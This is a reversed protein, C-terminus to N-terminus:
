SSFHKKKDYVAKIENLEKLMKEVDAPKTKKKEFYKFIVGYSVVYMDWPYLLIDKGEARLEKLLNLKAEYEKYASDMVALRYAKKAEYHQSIWNGILTLVSVSLGGLFALVATSM